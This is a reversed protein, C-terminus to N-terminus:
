SKKEEVEYKDLDEARVGFLIIDELPVLFTKKEGIRCCRKFGDGQVNGLKIIAKIFHVQEESFVIGRKRYEDAVKDFIRREIEIVEEITKM